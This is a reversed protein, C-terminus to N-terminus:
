ERRTSCQLDDDFFLSFCDEPLRCSTPVNPGPTAGTFPLHTPEVDTTLYFYKTFLRSIVHAFSVQIHAPGTMTLFPARGQLEEQLDAVAEVEGGADGQAGGVAEEEGGEGGRNLDPTRNVAVAAAAKRAATAERM